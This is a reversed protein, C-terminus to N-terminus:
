QFSTYIWVLQSVCAPSAAESHFHSYNLSNLSFCGWAKQSAEAIRLAFGTVQPSVSFALASPPRHLYLFSALSASTCLQCIHRVYCRTGAARLSVAYRGCIRRCGRWAPWPQTVDRGIFSLYQPLHHSRILHCMLTGRSRAAVLTWGEPAARRFLCKQPKKFLFEM